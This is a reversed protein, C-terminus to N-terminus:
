TPWTSSTPGCGLASRSRRQVTSMPPSRSCTTQPAGLTAASCFIAKALTPAVSNLVWEPLTSGSFAAFIRPTVDSPM